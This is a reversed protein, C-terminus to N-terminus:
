SCFLLFDNRKKTKNKNEHEYRLDVWELIFVGSFRQSQFIDVTQHLQWLIEGILYERAFLTCFSEFQFIPFHNFLACIGGFTTFQQLLHAFERRSQLRLQCWHRCNGESVHAKKCYQRFVICSAKVNKKKKIKCCCSSDCDKARTLKREATHLFIVPVNGTSQLGDFLPVVSTLEM